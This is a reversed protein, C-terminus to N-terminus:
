HLEKDHNQRVDSVRKEHSPVSHCNESIREEVALDSADVNSQSIPRNGARDNVSVNSMTRNNLHQRGHCYAGGLLSPIPIGAIFTRGILRADASRVPPVRQHAVFGSQGSSTSYVSGGCVMTSNNIPILQSDTASTGRSHESDVITICASRFTKPCTGKVEDAFIVYCM